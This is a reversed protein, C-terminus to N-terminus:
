ESGEDLGENQAGQIRKMIYIVVERAGEKAHTMYPDGPVISSQMMFREGLDKLVKEGDQTSFCSRFIHDGQAVNRRVEDASPRKM